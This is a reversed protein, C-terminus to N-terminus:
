NEELRFQLNTMVLETERENIKVIVLEALRSLISLPVHYDITSTVKTCINDKSRFTWTIKCNIAGDIEVSFWQYMEVEMCRAKGNLCVGAMKYKWTACYGKNPLLKENNIEILSPWIQTLNSPKIVFDFIKRLPANIMIEKDIREM